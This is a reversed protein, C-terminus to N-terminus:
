RMQIMRSLSHQDVNDALEGLLYFIVNYLYEPFKTKIEEFIKEIEKEIINESDGKTKNFNYIKVSEPFTLYSERKLYSLIDTINSFVHERM